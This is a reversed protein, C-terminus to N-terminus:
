FIAGPNIRRRPHLRRAANSIDSASNLLLGVVIRDARRRPAATIDHTGM